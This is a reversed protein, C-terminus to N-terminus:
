QAPRGLLGDIPLAGGNPPTYGNFNIAAAQKIAEEDSLGKEKVLYAAWMHSARWGVTCHLLVKGKSTSIATSVKTVAEPTYPTDPGGLPVHVYTIGLETALAAEDFPVAKRNDMEGQTRLSILTTVGSAALDRLAQESPQGSVYVPGADAIVAQFGPKDLKEPFKTAGQAFAPAAFGLLLAAIAFRM